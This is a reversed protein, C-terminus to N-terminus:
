LGGDESRSSVLEAMENLAPRLEDADVGDARMLTEILPDSLMDDLTPEDHCWRMIPEENPREHRSLLPENTVSDMCSPPPPRARKRPPMRAMPPVRSRSCKWM